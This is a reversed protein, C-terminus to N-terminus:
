LVNRSLRRISASDVGPSYCSPLCTKRCTLPSFFRVCIKLKFLCEVHFALQMYAGANLQKLVPTRRHSAKLASILVMPAESVHSLCECSSGAESSAAMHAPHTNRTQSTLVLLCECSSSPSRMIFSCIIKRGGSASLDSRYKM